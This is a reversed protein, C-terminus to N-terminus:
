HPTFNRLLWKKGVKKMVMPPNSGVPPNKGVFIRVSDEGEQRTECVVYSPNEPGYVLRQFHKGGDKRAAKFWYRKVHEERQFRIDVLSLFKSFARTENKDLLAKFVFYLSGEATALDGSTVPRAQRCNKYQRAKNGDHHSDKGSTATSSSASGSHITVQGQSGYRPDSPGSMESQRFISGREEPNPEKNKKCSVALAVVSLAITLRIACLGNITM